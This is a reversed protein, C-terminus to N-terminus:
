GVILSMDMPHCTGLWILKWNQRVGMYAAMNALYALLPSRWFRPIVRFPFSAGSYRKSRHFNSAETCLKDAMVASLIFEAFLRRGDLRPKEALGWLHENKNCAASFEQFFITQNEVDTIDVFVSEPITDQEPVPQTNPSWL